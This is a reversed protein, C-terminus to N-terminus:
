ISIKMYERIQSTLLDYQDAQMCKKPFLYQENDKNMLRIYHEHIDVHNIFEWREIFIENANSLEFSGSGVTLLRIGSKSM